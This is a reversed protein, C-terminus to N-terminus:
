SHYSIFHRYFGNSSYKTMGSWICCIYVYCCIFCSELAQKQLEGLRVFNCYRNPHNEKMYKKWINGYKGAFGKTQTVDVDSVSINPYLLGDEGETYTGGLQEFLSKEKSM